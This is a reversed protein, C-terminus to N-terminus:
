QSRRFGVPANKPDDTLSATGQSRHESKQTQQAATQHQMEVHLSRVEKTIDTPSSTRSTHGFTASLVEAVDFLDHSRSDSFHIKVEKTRDRNLLAETKVVLTRSNAYPLSLRTNGDQLARKQGAVAEAKAGNYLAVLDGLNLLRLGYLTQQKLQLYWPHGLKESLM